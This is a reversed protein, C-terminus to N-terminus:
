KLALAALKALRKALGEELPPPQTWDARILQEAAAAGVCDTVKDRLAAEDLPRGPAGPPLEVAAARTEGGSLEITVEVTGSLLDGGGPAADVQVRDLLARAAPRAVAGDEFSALGPRGDLLTAALAYELSFKAELGTRPRSHILPRLVDQDLKVSVASVAEAVVAEGAMAERTAEIPRQLAYCCPYPKIALGGPVAPAAALPRPAGGVIDLWQDLAAPDASAGAAALEAARLGADAAFGVQLSKTASGFARQVGGAAPVALAIARATAEADLGRAIAASVAAAPAGATCTAHWGRSYHAWGLMEGLRAMTGAGALYARAGGGSVLAVPVCIASVHSTSPLHLDDYDLVHALTALRGAAGLRAALPEIPHGAAARTVAVTDVLSRRALALDDQDPAFGRAWEALAAATGQSDAAM